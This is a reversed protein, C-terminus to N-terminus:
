ENKEGLKRNLTLALASIVSSDLKLL